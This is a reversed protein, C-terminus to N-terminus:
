HKSVLVIARPRNLVIRQAICLRDGKLWPGWTHTLDRHRWYRPFLTIVGDSAAQLATRPHGSPRMVRSSVDKPPDTRAEM